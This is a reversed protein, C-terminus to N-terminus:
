FQLDQPLFVYKERQSGMGTVEIEKYGSAACSCGNAMFLSKKKSDLVMLNQHPATRPHPLLDPSGWLQQWLESCHPKKEWDASSGASNAPLVHKLHMWTKGSRAYAVPCRPSPKGPSLPPFGLDPSVPQTHRVSQKEASQRVGPLDQSMLFCLDLLETYVM